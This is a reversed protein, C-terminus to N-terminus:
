MWFIVGAGNVVYTDFLYILAEFVEQIITDGFMAVVGALLTLIPMLAPSLVVLLEAVFSVIFAFIFSVVFIVVDLVFSFLSLVALGVILLVSVVLAFCSFLMALKRQSSINGKKKAISALVIGVIALATIPICTIMHVFPAISSLGIVIDIIFSMILTGVLGLVSIAAFSLSVIGLILSVLSLVKGPTKEKENLTVEAVIEVNETAVNENTNEMKMKRETRKM